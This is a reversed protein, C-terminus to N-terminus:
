FTNGLYFANGLYFTNGLKVEKVSKVLCWVLIHEGFVIHERFLIHERVKSGKSVQGPVVLVLIHETFLIHKRVKIVKRVQGPGM